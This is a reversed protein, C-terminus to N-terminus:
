IGFRITPPGRCARRDEYHAVDLTRIDKLLIVLEDKRAKKSDVRALVTDIHRKRSRYWEKSRAAEDCEHSLKDETWELRQKLQVVTSQERNWLGEDNPESEYLPEEGLVERMKNITVRALRAKRKDEVTLQSESKVSGELEDKGEVKIQPSFSVELKIQPSSSTPPTVPRKVDTMPLALTQIAPPLSLSLSLSRSFPLQHVATVGAEPSM